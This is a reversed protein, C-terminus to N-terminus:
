KPRRRHALDCIAAIDSISMLPNTPTEVYVYRTNKRIAQEVARLDSTNVYTFELGYNTLIQNFLRPVGGYVNHSCVL